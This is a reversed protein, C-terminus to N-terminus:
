DAEGDAPGDNAEEHQEARGEDLFATKREPYWAKWGFFAEM